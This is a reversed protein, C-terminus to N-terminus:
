CKRAMVDAVSYPIYPINSVLHDQVIYAVVAPFVIASFDTIGLKLKYSSVSSFVLARSFYRRFIVIFGLRQIVTLEWLGNCQLGLATFLQKIANHFNIIFQM